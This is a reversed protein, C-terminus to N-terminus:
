VRFGPLLAPVHRAGLAQEGRRERERGRRQAVLLVHAHAVVVAGQALLPPLLAVPRARVLEVRGRERERRAVRVHEVAQRQELARVAVARLRRQREQLARERAVGRVRVRQGVVRQQELVLPPMALRVRAQPASGPQRRVVSVGEAVETVELM